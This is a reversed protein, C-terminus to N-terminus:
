IYAFRPTVDEGFKLICYEGKAIAAQPETLLAPSQTM